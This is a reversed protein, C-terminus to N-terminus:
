NLELFELLIGSRHKMEGNELVIENKVNQRKTSFLEKSGNDIYILDVQDNESCPYLRVFGTKLYANIVSETATTNEAIAKM